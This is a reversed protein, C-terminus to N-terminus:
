AAGAGHSRKPAALAEEDEVVVEHMKGRFKYKVMLQKSEGLCPDFFGVLGAKSTPHLQLKSDKVLCQIPITVDIVTAQNINRGPRGGASLNGYLAQVIILGNRQEEAAIKRELTEKMLRVAAKAENRKMETLTKNKERLSDIEEQKRRLKWPLVMFKYVLAVLAIPVVTTYICTGFEPKPSISIPFIYTQGVRTLKLKLQVGVPVGVSVSAAVRNLSSVKKDAGYELVIGVTGLKGNVRVRADSGVSRVIAGALYTRPVGLQATGSITMNETNYVISANMCSDLGAKWTLYGMTSSSLQRALLVSIGKGLSGDETGGSDSDQVTAACTLFSHKSLTTTGKLSMYMGSGLGADIEINSASSVQRRYVVSVNGGGNGNQSMLVGGFTFSDRDSIPADISQSITMQGIEIRPPWFSSAGIYKDYPNFVQQANIHVSISGKANTRQQVRMEERRIKLREYEAKIDEATSLHPGLEWGANLGKEGYIDYIGRRTSDSLVAYATHLRNFVDEAAEKNESDQHKDPHYTICMRRYAAKIEDESADRDVNLLSYYDTSSGNDDEEDIM